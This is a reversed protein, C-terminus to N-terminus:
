DEESAPFNEALMARFHRRREASLQLRNLVQNLQDGLVEPDAHTPDLSSLSGPDAQAGALGSQGRGMRQHEIRAWGVSEIWADILSKDDDLLMVPMDLVLLMRGKESFEVARQIDLDPNPTSPAAPATAAALSPAVAPQQPHATPPASFPPRSLLRQGLVVGLTAFGFLIIGQIIWAGITTWDM